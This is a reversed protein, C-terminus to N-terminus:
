KLKRFYGDKYELEEMRCPMGHGPMIYANPQIGRLYPLTVSIFENESGGPYRTIVPIDPILSDGTFVYDDGFEICVSGPSHGPAAWIRVNYQRWMFEYYNDFCIDAKCEYLEFSDFFKRINEKDGNGKLMLLSLPRNKKSSAINEACKDKCILCCPFSNKLMNVGTTHDFHEHTLLITGKEIDQNMLFDQAERSINPDIILAEKNEIMVYMNSKIYDLEYRHFKM